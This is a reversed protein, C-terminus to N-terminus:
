TDLIIQYEHVSCLLGPCLYILAGRERGWRMWRRHSSDGRGTANRVARSVHHCWGVRHLHTPVGSRVHRVRRHESFSFILPAGRHLVVAPPPPAPVPHPCTHSVLSRRSPRRSLDCFFIDPSCNLSCLLLLLSAYWTTFRVGYVCFFLPHLCMSRPCSLYSM